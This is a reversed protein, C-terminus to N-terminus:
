FLFNKNELLKLKVIKECTFSSFRKEDSIQRMVSYRSCFGNGCM